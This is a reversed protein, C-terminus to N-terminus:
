VYNHHEKWKNLATNPMDEKFWKGFLTRYIWGLDAATYANKATELALRLDEQTTGEDPTFGLVMYVLNRNEEKMLFYSIREWRSDNPTEQICCICYIYSNTGERKYKGTVLRIGNDFAQLAKVYRIAYDRAEESSVYLTKSKPNYSLFEDPRSSNVLEQALASFSM